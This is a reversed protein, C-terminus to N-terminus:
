EGPNSGGIHRAAASGLLPGTKQQCFKFKMLTPPERESTRAYESHKTADQVFQHIHKELVQDLSCGWEGGLLYIFRDRDVHLPVESHNAFMLDMNPAKTIPNKVLFGAQSM